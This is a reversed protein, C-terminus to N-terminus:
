ADFLSVINYCQGQATQTAHIASPKFNPSLDILPSTILFHLEVTSLFSFVRALIYFSM